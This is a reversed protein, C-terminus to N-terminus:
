CEVRVGETCWPSDSAARGLDFWFMSREGSAVEAVIRVAVSDKERGLEEGIAPAETTVTVCPDLLISFSSGKVISAFKEASSLRAQNQPSNFAFATSFDSKKLAELQAKVVEEPGLALREAGLVPPPLTPTSVGTFVEAPTQPGHSPDPGPVRKGIAPADHRSCFIALEGFNVFHQGHHGWLGRLEPTSMEAVMEATEVVRCSSRNFYKNGDAVFCRGMKVAELALFEKNRELGIDAIEASTREISFGCPALIIIDADQLHIFGDLVASNGGAKGCIMECNAAEVCEAIWYGSGMIPALWELHAVKPPHAHMGCVASRVVDLRAKMSQILREGRNPVSCAEAITAVDGLVDGLSKPEVTVIRV